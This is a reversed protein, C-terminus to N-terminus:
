GKFSVLYIAIITGAIAEGVILGTALMYTDLRCMTKEQDTYEYKKANRELIFLEWMDRLFGGLLIPTTVYLPFYTGLGFATGMGTALEAWIGILIGVALLTIIFGFANDSFLLQLVTAFAHAQPAPLELTGDALGQLIAERDKESRLPPNMKASTGYLEVAEDTLTFYHPATEATVNVGRKKARRIADVSEATSVHAIHMRTGTKECLSIEREVMISEATNPIGEWGLKEAVPGRNMTGSKVLSM